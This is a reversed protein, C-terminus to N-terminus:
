AQKSCLARSALAHPDIGGDEVLSRLRVIRRLESSRPHCWVMRDSPEIGERRALSLSDAPLQAQKSCLARGRDLRPTRYRRKGRSPLRVSCPEPKTALWLAVRLPTPITVETKWLSPLDAPLRARKSRPACRRTHPDVGRGEVMFVRTHASLHVRQCAQEKSPPTPARAAQWGGPVPCRVENGCEETVSTVEHSSRGAPLVRSRWEQSALEFRARRVM